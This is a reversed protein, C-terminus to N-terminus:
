AQGTLLYSNPDMMLKVVCVEPRRPSREITVPAKKMSVKCSEEEAAEEDLSQVVPDSWKALLEQLNM